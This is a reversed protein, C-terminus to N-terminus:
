IQNNDKRGESYDAYSSDINYGDNSMNVLVDSYHDETKDGINVFEPGIYNNIPNRQVENISIGYQAYGNKDKDKWKFIYNKLNKKYYNWLEMTFDITRNNFLM